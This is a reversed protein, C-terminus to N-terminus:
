LDQDQQLPRRKSLIIRKIGDKIMAVNFNILLGLPLDLLKLHSLIQAEFVPIMVEVSKIEVIVKKNVLLDLVLAAEFIIGDYKIPLKVQREVQFGAKTLEHALCVEYISELLGPGTKKHVKFACDVVGRAIREIEESTNEGYAM